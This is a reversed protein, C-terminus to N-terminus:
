TDSSRSGAPVCERLGVPPKSLAAVLAIGERGVTVSDRAEMRGMLMVRVVYRGPPINRLHFGGDAATSTVFRGPELLIGVSPLGAGSETAVVRGAVGVGGEGVAWALRSKADTTVCPARPAAHHCGSLTATLALAGFVRM